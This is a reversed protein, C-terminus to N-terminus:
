DEPKCNVSEAYTIKCKDCKLHVTSVHPLHGSYQATSTHVSSPTTGSDKEQMEPSYKNGELFLFWLV